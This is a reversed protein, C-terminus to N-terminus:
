KWEPKKCKWVAYGHKVKSIRTYFRQKQLKEAEEEALNRNNFQFGTFKKHLDFIRTIHGIKFKRQKPLNSKPKKKRGKKIPLSM